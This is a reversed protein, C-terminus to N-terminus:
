GLTEFGFELWAKPPPVQFTHVHGQDSVSLRYAHLALSDVRYRRSIMEAHKLSGYRTDGVIHCGALSCHKRVQHQRGTLLRCRLLSLWPTQALLEFHTHAPVQDKLKGAPNKRGEAKSSLPKTWEGNFQSPQGKVVTLM